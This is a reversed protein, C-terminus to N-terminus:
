RSRAAGVRRRVIRVGIILVVVVAAAVAPSRRVAALTEGAWDNGSSPLKERVAMTLHDAGERARAPVNVKHALAAVSDALEQRSVEIDARLFTPDNASPVPDKASRSM